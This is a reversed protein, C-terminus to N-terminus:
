KNVDTVRNITECIIQVDSKNFIGVINEADQFQGVLKVDDEASVVYIPTKIGNARMYSTVDNSMGDILFFDLIISDYSYKGLLDKAINVSNTLTIHFNKRLKEVLIDSYEKNDEVILLQAAEEKESEFKEITSSENSLPLTIYFTSGEGESSEVWIRGGHLEEIIKKSIVLGLGTGKAKTDTNSHAQEFPTFLKSIADKPIGIGTDSISMKIQKEEFKIALEVRGSKPTFKVANSLLNIIVQKLLQEDAFLVLSIKGPFILTLDKEKAMPLILTEVENLLPAIEITRPHFSIKGAEIKAFDLITNVLNLLNNGAIGIKEIYPRLNEPIESRTKLIQSFGIIANLPTRLEHSMSALFTDKSRNATEAKQALEILYHEKERTSIDDKLLLLFVRLLDIVFHKYPVHKLSICIYFSSKHIVIEEYLDSRRPEDTIVIDEIVWALSDKISDYTLKQLYRKLKQPSKIPIDQMKQLLETYKQAFRMGSSITLFIVSSSKEFPKNLAEFLKESRKQLTNFNETQETQTTENEISEYLKKADKHYEQHLKEISKLDQQLDPYDEAKDELSKILSTFPCASASPVVSFKGEKIEQKLSGQLFSNQLIKNKQKHLEHAKYLSELVSVLDHQKEQTDKQKKLSTVMVYQAIQLFKLITSMDKVIVENVSSVEIVCEQLLSFTGLVSGMDNALPFQFYRMKLKHLLAPEFSDQFLATFFQIYVQKLTSIFQSSISSKYLPHQLLKEFYREIILSAFSEIYNGVRARKDLIDQTINFDIQINEFVNKM